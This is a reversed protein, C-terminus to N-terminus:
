GDKIRELFKHVKDVYEQNHFRGLDDVKPTGANYAAMAYDIGKSEYKKIFRKLHKLSYELGIEPNFLREFDDKFGYERAVEGMIQMLGYSTARGKGEKEELHMPMIYRKYFGPEYRVAQPNGSSETMCFAEILDPDLEFERAKKEIIARIEPKVM